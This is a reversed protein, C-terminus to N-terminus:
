FEELYPCIKTSRWLFAVTSHAPNDVARLIKLLGPDANSDELRRTKFIDHSLDYQHLSASISHEGM